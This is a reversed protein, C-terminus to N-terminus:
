GAGARWCHVDFDDVGAALQHEPADEVRVLLPEAAPEGVEAVDDGPLDRHRIRATVDLLGDPLRKRTGIQNDRGAAQARSRIVQRPIQYRLQQPLRQPFVRRHQCMDPTEELAPLPIHRFADLHLGQNRFPGHHQVIRM